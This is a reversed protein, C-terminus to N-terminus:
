REGTLAYLYKGMNNALLINRLELDIYPKTIKRENKVPKQLLGAEQMYKCYTQKLKKIGSESWGAVVASQEVKRNFFMHLDADKLVDENMYLKIRYVEYILEFLLIDTAMAAILAILKATNIDATCLLDILQQPLSDIRRKICNFERKARKEAKQQYINDQVVMNLVDDVDNDSLLKATERMEVFWLLNSVNGASYEMGSMERENTISSTEM